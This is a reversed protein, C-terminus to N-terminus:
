AVARVRWGAGPVAVLTLTVLRPGDAPIEAVLAGTTTERRHASTTVKATVSATGGDHRVVRVDSVAYTVGDLRWGRDALTRVVARDAAMAASGPEDAAALPATSAAAFAQARARALAPLASAPEPPQDVREARGAEVGPAQHREEAGEEPDGRRRLERRGLQVGSREEVLGEVAEHVPQFRHRAPRRHPLPRPARTGNSGCERVLASVCETKM